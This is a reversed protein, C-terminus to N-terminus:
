NLLKYRSASIQGYSAINLVFNCKQNASFQDLNSGFSSHPIPYLPLTPSPTPPCSTLFKGPKSKNNVSAFRRFNNIWRWAKLRRRKLLRWQNRNVNVGSSLLLQGKNNCADHWERIDQTIENWREDTLTKQFFDQQQTKAEEYLWLTRGEKQPGRRWIRGWYYFAEVGGKESNQKSWIWGLFIWCKRVNRSRNREHYKSGWIYPDLWATPLSALCVKKRKKKVKAHKGSIINNNNHNRDLLYASPM